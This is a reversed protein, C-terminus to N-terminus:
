SRVERSALVRELEDVRDIHDPSTMTEREAVLAAEMAGRSATEIAVALAAKTSRLALTPQAALRHALGLAQDMLDGPAVVRNCLGMSLADAASVRDGTFLFEKVRLISTLLPWLTVGGDGAALGVSVHPDALYATEAMLVIDCGLALSCGLGVAPGNVAAVVPLPFRMMETQIRRDLRIGAERTTEDVHNRRLYALDGGACFARGAGTLVVARADPDDALEAWLGSLRRHLTETVNNLVGPRNLTVVRVPGDVTVTVEDDTADISM